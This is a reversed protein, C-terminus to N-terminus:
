SPVSLPVGNDTPKLQLIFPAAKLVWQSILPYNVAEEGFCIDLMDTHIIGPNLPIAAMGAPLEQALARTLGEIAWKSACYPAVLPSTSRGWGSSLNIIIGHRKQVMAPVFHRIIHVVGKINIDILQSFGASPVEWLPAPQNAIAANNILLDPPEYEKLILEAWAKVQAEDAVDVAAFNHPSGFKHSLEEVTVQSRACGIITHGEQIFRETLAYGLGRSVGTILILKVM